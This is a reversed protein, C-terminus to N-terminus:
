DQKLEIIGEISFGKVEGSKIRDWLNQDTVQARVCLSGITVHKPDFYQYIEDNEDETVWMRLTHIGNLLTEKYEKGTDSLFWEHGWSYNNMALSVAMKLAAKEIAKADWRVFYEGKEDCRYICQGNILIPSVIQRKEEDVMVIPMAKREKSQLIWNTQIAPFDVLSIGWVGDDWNDGVEINYIPLNQFQM